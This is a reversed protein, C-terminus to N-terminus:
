AVRPAAGVVMEASRTSTCRHRVPLNGSHFYSFQDAAPLRSLAAPLNRLAGPQRPVRHGLVQRPRLRLADGPIPRNGALLLQATQRGDPLHARAPHNCGGVIQQFRPRVLDVLPEGPVPQLQGADVLQQRSAAAPHGVLGQPSEDDPAAPGTQATGRHAHLVGRRPLHGLGVEPAQAQNRVRGRSLALQDPGHDDHQAMGAVAEEPGHVLLREGFDDGSQLRGPGEEAAHGPVQDDVVEGGGHHSRVRQIRHQGPAKQLVGLAPAEEGIRGPHAVGFVLGLHLPAHGVGPLAEELPGAEVAQGVDPGLGGPPAPLHGAPADVAGGAALGEQYELLLFAVGQEGPVPFGVLDGVPAGELHMGVVVDLALLGEVRHGRVEARRPLLHLDAGVALQHVDIVLSAQDLDVQALGPAPPGGIGLVIGGSDAGVGGPRRVLELPLRGPQSRRHGFEGLTEKSVGQRPGLEALPVLQQAQGLAVGARAQVGGAPPRHVHVEDVHAAQFADQHLGQVLLSRGLQWQGRGGSAEGPGAGDEGMGSM